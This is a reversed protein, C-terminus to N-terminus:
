IKQNLLATFNESKSFMPAAAEIEEAPIIVNKGGSKMAANVIVIALDEAEEQPAGAELFKKATIEYANAKDDLLMAIGNVPHTLFAVGVMLAKQQNTPGHANAPAIASVILVFANAQQSAFFSLALVLASKALLNKM